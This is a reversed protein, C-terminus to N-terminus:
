QIYPIAGCYVSAVLERRYIRRLTGINDPWGVKEWDDQGFLGEDCRNRVISKRIKLVFHDQDVFTQASPMIFTSDTYVVQDECIKPKFPKAPQM